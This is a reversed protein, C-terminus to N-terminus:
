DELADIISALANHRSALKNLEQVRKLFRDERIDELARKFKEHDLANGDIRLSIGLKEAKIANGEQESHSPIPILISPKNCLIFQALSTHGARSVIIDASQILRDKVPCWEYLYGGPIPTPQDNGLPKGASIISVFGDGLSAALSMAKSLLVVRTKPPGSIQWFIKTRRDNILREILHDTAMNEPPVLFGIYKARRLIKGAAWLNRDSITYPPPLDSLLVEDSLEWLENGVTISGTSLLKKAMAPTKPSSELRLQNLVSVVRKGLIKSAMVTALVSDSLITDPAFRMLHRLEMGTQVLFRSFIFPTLKLTEKASFSGNETYAVDVLPLRNCIFNEKMIFDTVEGSSSFRIEFGRKKLLRAVSLM